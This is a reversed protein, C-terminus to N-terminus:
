RGWLSQPRAAAAPQGTQLSLVQNVYSRLRMLPGLYVTVHFTPAGEEDAAWDAPPSRISTTVCACLLGSLGGCLLSPFHPAGEGSAARDAPLPGPQRLQAPADRAGPFGIVWLHPSTPRAKEVPQGTQLSLVQNVYNRLRMLERAENHIDSAQGRASGSPHHLMIRTNPLAYRKGQGRM